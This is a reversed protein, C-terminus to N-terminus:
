PKPIILDIDVAMPDPVLLWYAKWPELIASDWATSLYTYGDWIFIVNDVWGNIIANAFTETTGNTISCDSLNVTGEYPNGILNYGPALTLTTTPATNTTGTAQTPTNSVRSNLFIGQGPVITTATTWFGDDYPDAPAPILNGTPTWSYMPGNGANSGFVTYADDPVPLKPVSVMNWEMLLGTKGDPSNSLASENSMEDSTKIAFYYTTNPELDWVYFSESAGATAPMPPYSAQTAAAWDAPLLIESKAYRIDYTAATGSSGDDGPATWTLMRVHSSITAASSSVALDAIAGPPTTDPTPTASFEVTNTEENGSPDEARVVFYYIQGDTLGSVAEGSSSSSSGNPSTFNQAGSSTTWYINYIIPANADTATNWALNVQGGQAADTAGTLGAFVPAISDVVVTDISSASVNGVRDKAWAYLTYSGEAAVTYSSPASDTWGTAGPLTASETIKYDTVEVDDTATFTSVPVVLTTSTDPMDFATVTPATVDAEDVTIVGSARNDTGFWVQARSGTIRLALHSGAPATGSITSIDLGFRQGWGASPTNQNVSGWSTFSGSQVYGLAFNITRTSVAQYLFFDLMAGNVLTDVAYPNEKILLTNLNYSTTTSIVKDAACSFGGSNMTTTVTSNGIGVIQDSGCAGWDTTMGGISAGTSPRWYYSTTGPPALTITVTDSAAAASVNGAADKVWAYLTQDGESSFTYSAPASGSWGLESTGPATSTHSLLYGTVGINDSGTFTTIPVTLSASTAPIDFADVTPKISDVVVSDSLSTSVNGAADKAWAYLTRNGDGAVTFTAPASGLWGGAGAGPAVASETVMWGTVGTADSTLFWTVPVTLSGSSAPIQFFTVTPAVNDTPTASYQVTNTEENGAADEARVVFYYIQGDTLSSVTGGTGSSSTANPTTFNQAGSSTAWYINYTIPPSSDTAASWILDVSQTTGADAAGTLGAFSPNVTDVLVTDSVSLSVNTGDKAWAYLTKSGDTLPNVTYNVPPTPTWSPNSLLPATASETVMYGTVAVDDVATFTTIPVTRSTSAAPVDFATVIPATYAVEDVRITGSNSHNSGMWIEGWNGSTKTVRVALYSGAPALGNVGSFDLTYLAGGTGSMVQDVFGWSTFVGSQMLGLEFRMTNSGSYLRNLWWTMDIGTVQTNVVYTTSNIVHMLNPYSSGPSKIRADACNFANSMLTNKMSYPTIATPGCAESWNTTVGAVSTGSDRQWRYTATAAQSSSPLLLCSFFSLIILFVGGRAVSRSVVHFLVKPFVSAIPSTTSRTNSPLPIRCRRM